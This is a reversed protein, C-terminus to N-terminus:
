AASKPRSNDNAAARCRTSTALTARHLFHKSGSTFLTIVSRVDYGARTLADAVAGLEELGSKTITTPVRVVIENAYPSQGDKTYRREIRMTRGKTRSATAEGM